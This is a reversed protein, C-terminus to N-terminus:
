PKNSNKYPAYKKAEILAKQANIMQSRSEENMKKVLAERQELLALRKETEEKITKAKSLKSSSHLSESILFILSSIWVFLFLIVVSGDIYM